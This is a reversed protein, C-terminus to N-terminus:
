RNSSAAPISGIVPSNKGSSETTFRGSTTCARRSPTSARRLICGAGSSRRRFGLCGRASRVHVPSSSRSNFCIYMAPADSLIIRLVSPLFVRSNSFCSRTM